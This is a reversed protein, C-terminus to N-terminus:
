FQNGLWTRSGITSRSKKLPLYILNIIYETIIFHLKFAMENLSYLFLYTQIAPSYVTTRSCHVM